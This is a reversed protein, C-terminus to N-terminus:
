VSPGEQDSAMNHQNQGFKLKSRIKTQASYKTAETETNQSFIHKPQCSDVVFLNCGYFRGIKIGNHPVGLCQGVGVLVYRLLNM